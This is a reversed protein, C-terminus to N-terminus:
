AALTSIVALLLIVAFVGALLVFTQRKPHTPRNSPELDPNVGPGNGSGTAPTPVPPPV